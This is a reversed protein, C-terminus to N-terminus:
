KKLRRCEVIDLALKRYEEINGIDYFLSYLSLGDFMAMLAIATVEPELVREKKFMLVIMDMVEKLIDRFFDYDGSYLVKGSIYASFRTLHQLETFNRTTIDILDGVNKIEDKFELFLKRFFFDAVEKELNDKNKFYYFILGKSVGATEAIEEVTVKEPPKSTYLKIAAELIEVKVSQDTM